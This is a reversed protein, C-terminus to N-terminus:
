SIIERDEVDVTTLGMLRPSDTSVGGKIPKTKVFSVSNHHSYFFFFLFSQQIEKRKECLPLEVLVRNKDIVLQRWWRREFDLDSKGRKCIIYKLQVLSTHWVGCLSIFLFHSSKFSDLVSLDVRYVRVMTGRTAQDLTGARILSYQWYCVTIQDRGWPGTIIVGHSCWHPNIPRQEM